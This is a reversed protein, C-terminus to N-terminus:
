VTWRRHFSWWEGIALAAAALLALWPLDLPLRGPEKGPPEHLRAALAPLPEARTDSERGNALPGARGDSARDDAPPGTLWDIANALLLPFGPRLPLDSRRLDFALAVAGLEARRRAVILPLDLATVVAEDDPGLQLRRAERVNLDALSVHALLPHGAASGTPVPAAVSRASAFPSGPGRPDLFVFRGATPAPAPTPADVIVVDYGALAEPAFAAPSPARRDFTVLPALGLLAGELYLNPPGIVLIRRPAFPPVVATAEDDIPLADPTGARLHAVLRDARGVPVALTRTLRGGPALPLTVTEALRGPPELRFAVEVEAPAAAFSQLSVTVDALDPEAPRRRAALLRFALNDVPAGARVFRLGLGDAAAVAAEAGADHVGDGVVYVRPRAQDRLVGAAFALAAELDAEEAAPALADLARHLRDHDREFATEAVAAAAFSALMVRDGPGLTALMRRAKDRAEDLRTRDAGRGAIAGMSASRDVLLLVTEGAAAAAGGRPPALALVLLWVFTVQLLWSLWRRLRRGLREDLPAGAAAAWLPAFSVLVRRKRERLLYLATVIATGLLGAAVAERAGLAFATV